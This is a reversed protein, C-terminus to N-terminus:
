FGGLTAQGGGSSTALGFPSLTINDQILGDQAFGTRFQGVSDTVTQFQSREFFVMPEGGFAHLKDEDNLVQVVSLRKIQQRLVVGDRREHIFLYVPNRAMQEFRVYDEWKERDLGHRLSDEIGYEQPARKSKVEAYRPDHDPHHAQFDPLRLNDGSVDRELMPARGDEAAKRLEKLGWGSAQLMEKILEETDSGPGGDYTM